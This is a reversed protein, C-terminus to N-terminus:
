STFDAGGPVKIFRGRVLALGTDPKELDVSQVQM